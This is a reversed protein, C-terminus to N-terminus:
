LLLVATANRPLLPPLFIDRLLLVTHRVLGDEQAALSLDGSVKCCYSVVLQRTINVTFSVGEFFTKNNKGPM